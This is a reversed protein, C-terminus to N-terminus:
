HQLYLAQENELLHHRHSHLHIKVCVNNEAIENSTKAFTACFIQFSMLNTFILKLRALFLM